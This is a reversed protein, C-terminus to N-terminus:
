FVESKNVPISSEAQEIISQLSDGEEECDEGFKDLVAIPDMFRWTPLSSALGAMLYGGQLLWILLGSSVTTTVVAATSILRQEEDAILNVQEQIDEYRTWMLDTYVISAANVELRHMAPEFSSQLLAM